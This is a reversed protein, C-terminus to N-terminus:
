GLAQLSSGHSSVCSEVHRLVGYNRFVSRDIVGSLM